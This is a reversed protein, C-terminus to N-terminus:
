QEELLWAHDERLVQLPEKNSHLLDVWYAAM